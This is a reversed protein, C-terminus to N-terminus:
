SFATANGTDSIINLGVLYNWVSPLPPPAPPALLPTGLPGPNRVAAALTEAAHQSAIAADRAAQAADRAAQTAQTLQDAQSPTAPATTTTGTTTTTTTQQASAAASVLVGAAVVCGRFWDRSYLTMEPNRRGPLA